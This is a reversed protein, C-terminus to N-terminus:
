APPAPDAAFIYTTDSLFAIRLPRERGQCHPSKRSHQRLCITRM